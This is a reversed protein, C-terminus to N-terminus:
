RRDAQVIQLRSKECMAYQMCIMGALAVAIGTEVLSTVGYTRVIYGSVANAAAGSLGSSAIYMLSQGKVRDEKTIVEEVYYVSSGWYAGNGFSQFVHGLILIGLTPAILINLMKFIMCVSSIQLLKKVGIRQCIRHFLFAVPLESIALVFQCYGLELNSGGLREVVDILFALTMSNGTFLLFSAILFIVFNRNEKMIYHLSHPEARQVKKANNRYTEFSIVTLFTAILIFLNLRLLMDIGYRDVIWGFFVSAIAYLLSGVGRGMSFNVGVGNDAFQIAMSSYLPSVSYITAGFIVFVTFSLWTSGGAYMWIVNGAISFLLLLSAVYKIPVRGALKDAVSAVAPQVLISVLPAAALFVGIKDESFGKGRFIQVAYVLSAMMIWHFGQIWAYHINLGLIKKDKM